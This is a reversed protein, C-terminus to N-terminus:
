SCFHYLWPYTRFAILFCLLSSGWDAMILVARDGQRHLLYPFSTPLPGLSAENAFSGCRRSLAISSGVIRQASMAYIFLVVECFVGFILSFLHARTHLFVFSQEVVFHPGNASRLWVYLVYFGCPWIRGMELERASCECMDDDLRTCKQVLQSFSPKSNHDLDAGSFLVWVLMKFHPPAMILQMVVFMEVVVRLDTDTVSLSSRWSQTMHIDLLCDNM